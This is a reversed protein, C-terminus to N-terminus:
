SFVNLLIGGGTKTGRKRDGRKWKGVGRKSCYGVKNKARSKRGRIGKKEKERNSSLKSHLPIRRKVKKERRVVTGLEGKKPGEAIARTQRQQRKGGWKRAM